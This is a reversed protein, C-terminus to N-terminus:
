VVCLLFANLYLLILFHQGLSSDILFEKYKSYLATDRQIEVYVSNVQFRSLCFSIEYSFIVQLRGYICVLTKCWGLLTRVARRCAVRKDILGNHLASLPSKV